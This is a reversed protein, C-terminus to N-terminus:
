EHNEVEILYKDDFIQRIHKWAERDNCQYRDKVRQISLYILERIENFQKLNNHDNPGYSVKNSM